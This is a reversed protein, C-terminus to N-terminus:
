KNGKELVLRVQGPPVGQHEQDHHVESEVDQFCEDHFAFGVLLDTNCYDITEHNSISFVLTPLCIDKM